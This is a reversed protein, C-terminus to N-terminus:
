ALKSAPAQPGEGRHALLSAGLPLPLLSGCELAGVAGSIKEAERGECKETRVPAPFRRLPVGQGRRPPVQLFAPGALRGGVASRNDVFQPRSAPPPGLTSRSHDTDMPARVKDTVIESDSTIWSQVYSLVGPDCTRNASEDPVQHQNPNPTYEACASSSPLQKLSTCTKGRRPLETGMM